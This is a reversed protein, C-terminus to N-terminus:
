DITFFLNFLTIASIMFIILKWSSVNPKPYRRTFYNWKMSAKECPSLPFTSMTSMQVYHVNHGRLFTSLSVQIRLHHKLNKSGGGVGEGKYTCFIHPQNDKERYKNLISCLRWSWSCCKTFDIIIKCIQIQVHM